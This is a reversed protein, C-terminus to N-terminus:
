LIEKNIKMYLFDQNSSLFSFLFMLIIELFKQKHQKYTMKSFLWPTPGKKYSSKQKLSQDNNEFSQMSTLDSLESPTLFKVGEETKNEVNSDKSEKIQLVEINNKDDIGHKPESDKYDATKTKVSSTNQASISVSSSSLNYIGIYDM